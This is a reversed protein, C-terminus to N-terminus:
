AAPVLGEGRAWEITRRFTGAVPTYRLGLEREARSGDYHHGHLLTGVMERCFPPKSGRVRFAGEVVAGAVTAVFPPLM